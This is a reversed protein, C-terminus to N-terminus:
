ESIVFVDRLKRYDLIPVVIASKFVDQDSAHVSAVRGIVLDRPMGELGSTVVMADDPIESEQLIQDLVLTDGKTVLLGRAATTLVEAPITSESHSPLQVLASHPFVQAIRGVFNSESVVALGVAVADDSGMDITITKGSTGVIHAPIFHTSPAFPAELQRRLAENEQKLREIHTQDVAHTALQKRLSEIEQNKQAISAFSITSVLQQRLHYISEKPVIFVADFGRHLVGMMGWQELLLLILSLLFPLLVLRITIRHDNTM